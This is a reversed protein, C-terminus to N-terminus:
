GEQTYGDRECIINVLWVRNQGASSLHVDIHRVFGLKVDEDTQYVDVSVGFKGHLMYTYKEMLHDHIRQHLSETKDTSGAFRAWAEQTLQKIFIVADTFSDDVLVSTDYKYVSRLSAYHVSTRNYYQMYNLGYNWLRSKTDESTATWSFEKWCAVDANPLEKPEKNMFDRNLYEAKKLALWLTAPLWRDYDATKGAHLFITCRCCSTGKAVSERQLLAKDRLGSGVEEDIYRTNVVPIKGMKDAYSVQTGLIVKIDDRVSMFNLMEYKTEMNFGTDILCNFPFRPKDILYENTTDQLLLRMYEQMREDADLGDGKSGITEAGDEGGTMFQVVDSSMTTLEPTVGDGIVLDVVKYPNGNIDENSFLNVMFGQEDAEWDNEGNDDYDIFLAARAEPDAELIMNGVLRFNEPFMQIKCPLEYGDSYASELVAKADIDVGTVADTAGEKVVFSVETNSYKNRISSLATSGAPLEVPAMSYYVAGNRIITDNANAKKDYFLKFGVANGWEGANSAVFTFMPYFTSEVATAQEKTVTRDEEQMDGREIAATEEDYKAKLPAALDGFINYETAKSTPTLFEFDESGDEPAMRALWKLQYGNMTQQTVMETTVTRNEETWVGGEPNEPDLPEANAIKESELDYTEQMARTIENGATNLPIKESYTVDNEIYDRYMFKGNSDRKFQPVASPTVCLEMVLRARQADTDGVRVIWAGNDQFTKTLFYASPSFYKSKQNFTESGFTAVAENYTDRWVPIGFPGKQTRMFYIPRHLPLRDEKIPIYISRDEVEIELHPYPAITAM